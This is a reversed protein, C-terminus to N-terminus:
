TCIELHATTKFFFFFGLLAKHNFALVQIDPQEQYLAFPLPTKLLPFEIELLSYLFAKPWWAKYVVDISSSMCFRHALKKWTILVQSTHHLSAQSLIENFVFLHNYEQPIWWPFFENLFCTKSSFAPFQFCHISNGTLNAVSIPFFRTYTCETANRPHKIEATPFLIFFEEM